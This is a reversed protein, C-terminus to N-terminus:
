TLDEWAHEIVRNLRRTSLILDAKKPPNGWGAKSGNGRPIVTLGTSDAYRLATALEAENQPEFIMRPQVGAVIDEPGADRWQERSGVSLLQEWQNGTGTETGSASVPPASKAGDGGESKAPDGRKAVDSLNAEDALTM